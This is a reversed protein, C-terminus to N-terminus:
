PTPGYVDVAPLTTIYVTQTQTRQSEFVKLSLAASGVMLLLALVAAVPLPVSIRRKWAVIRVAKRDGAYTRTHPILSLIKEDLEAPAMPPVQERLDSRLAQVSRFAERCGECSNLHGFLSKAEEDGLESDMLASMQEEYRNCNM